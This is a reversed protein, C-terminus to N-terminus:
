RRQAKAWKRFEELEQLSANRIDESTWESFDKKEPLTKTSPPPPQTQKAVKERRAQIYLQVEESRAAEELPINKAKSILSIYDLEEPSYDKLASIKKVLDAIDSSIEKKEEKSKEEAKKKAEIERRLLEAELRKAKEEAKKVRAFLQKNKERLEESTLEKNLEEELKEFSEQPEESTKEKEAM